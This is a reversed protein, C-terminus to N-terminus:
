IINTNFNAIVTIHSSSILQIVLIEIYLYYFLSEFILRKKQIKSFNIKTKRRKMTIGM